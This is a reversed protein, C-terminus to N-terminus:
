DKCLEEIFRQVDPMELLRQSINPDPKIGTKEEILKEVIHLSEEDMLDEITINGEDFKKRLLADKESIEGAM